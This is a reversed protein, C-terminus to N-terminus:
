DEVEVESEGKESKIEIEKGDETEIEMKLEDGEKKIEVERGDKTEKEYKFEGKEGKMEIETGDKTEKEYKFEDKEIKMEIETGDETEKEYKFEGKEVKMEIEVSDEIEKEYKMENGESKLKWEVEKTEHDEVSHMGKKNGANMHDKQLQTGDDRMWQSNMTGNQLLNVLYVQNGWNSELATISYVQPGFIETAKQVVHDPVYTNLVPLAVNFRSGDNSYYVHTVRGKDDAFKTHFWDGYQYWVPKEVAMPYDLVYYAQIADPATVPVTSFAYYNQSSSLNENKEDGNNQALLLMSSCTFMLMMLMKKM